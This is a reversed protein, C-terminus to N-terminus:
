AKNLVPELTVNYGGMTEINKAITHVKSEVFPGMEYHNVRAGYYTGGETYKIKFERM